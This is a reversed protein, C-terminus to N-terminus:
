LHNLGCASNAQRTTRKSNILNELLSFALLYFNGDTKDYALDLIQFIFIGIAM